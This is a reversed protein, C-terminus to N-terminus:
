GATLRASVTEPSFDEGDPWCVTGHAIFVRRFYTANALQMFAPYHLFPQVDFTGKRGDTLEVALQTDALARAAVIEPAMPELGRTLPEGHIPLTM